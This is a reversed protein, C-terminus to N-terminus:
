RKVKERRFTAVENKVDEEKLPGFKEDRERVIERIREWEERIDPLYLKKMIITDVDGYVLLRTKPKLGLKKRLAQPIVVQGKESVTTIEPESM